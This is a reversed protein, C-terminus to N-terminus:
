LLRYRVCKSNFSIFIYYEIRHGDDWVSLLSVWWSFQM